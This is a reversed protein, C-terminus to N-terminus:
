RRPIYRGSRVSGRRPNSSRHKTTAKKKDDDETQVHKQPVERQQRPRTETERQEVQTPRDSSRRVDRTPERTPGKKRVNEFKRETTRTQTIERRTKVSSGSGSRARSPASQARTPGTPGNQVPSKSRIKTRDSSVHRESDKLDARTGTRVTGTSVSHRDRRTKVETLNSRGTGRVGRVPNKTEPASETTSRRRAQWERARELGTKPNTRAPASFGQGEQSTQVTTKVGTRRRKHEALVSRVRTPARSVSARGRRSASSIYVKRAATLGSSWKGIHGRGGTRAHWRHREDHRGNYYGRLYANYQSRRQAWYYNYRPYIYKVWCGLYPDWHLHRGPYFRRYTYRYWPKWVYKTYRRTVIRTQYASAYFHVNIYNVDIEQSGEAIVRLTMWGNDNYGRTALRISQSKKGEPLEFSDGETSGACQFWLRGATGAGWKGDNGSYDVTVGMSHAWDPIKLSYGAHAIAFQYDKGKGYSWASLRVGKAYVPSDTVASAGEERWTDLETGWKHVSSSGYAQTTGILVVILVFLVKRLM